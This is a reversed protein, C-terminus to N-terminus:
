VAKKTTKRKRKQQTRFDSVAKEKKDSELFAITEEMTKNSNMFAEVIAKSEIAAKKKRLEKLEECATNYAEGTKVVREEAKQIKLEISEITMRAM